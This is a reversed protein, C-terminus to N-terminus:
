DLAGRPDCVACWLRLAQAHSAADHVRMVQVGQGWAAQALAVSGPDRAAAPLEGADGAGLRGIFGKRSVGLLLGCGLGHFLGIRRLLALNHAQTKGFGIGPDLLIQRRDIGAAEARELRAELADYVDLLVDGYRPDRQMTEPLGQAHMICVPAARAAVLDAMGSDFDFGSVDNVLDAGADLAAAAVAAKRTDISLPTTLGDARLARIVPATRAIEESLSVEAAGPRTSEGGLDLMDCHAALHRAQALAAEPRDFQGGDSFSDPTLNLIGMIRPLRLDLGGLPARAATLRDIVETPVQEIPLIDPLDEYPDPHDAPARRIREVRDFWCWGGALPLAEPSPAPDTQCIPRWYVRGTDRSATDRSATDRSATDPTGM